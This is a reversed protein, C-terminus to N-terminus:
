AISGGAKMPIGACFPEASVFRQGKMAARAAPLLDEAASAKRVFGRAGTDLARQMTERAGDTTIFVVAVPSALAKIRKVAEIGNLVPMLVYVVILDPKLRSTAEVLSLGDFVSEVVDFEPTLIQCLLPHVAPHDDALIATPRGANTTM